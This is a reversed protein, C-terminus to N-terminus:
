GVVPSRADVERLEERNDFVKHVADIMREALGPAALDWACPEFLVAESQHLREAVPCLGPPYTRNSLNFPFGDRGFARRQQFIPLRYLPQVYGTAVPFGEAALAKAFTARSIGTEAADYRVMWVYFNHRCDDRSEPVSWGPLGRTGDSLSVAFSERLHVREEIRKLQEIGIAASLETMRYNFGVMNVLDEAPRGHMMNEAHNRILALRDALRADDTVCMGGEGTHVHKHYNFSFVGIHGITGTRKGNEAGLPAQANDEILYIGHEDALKRLEHLKAPHGFLNVALIARTKPTLAEHVSDLDICFTEDEVDAFVPIGGYVLPAMATASMTWCPVIVEDGPSTGIAGMAAFLGSTASNVSLAHRSGCHTGWAEEFARVRPGGLFEPGASGYFGSLCDSEIVELVARQEAAGMSRDRAFPADFVPAGGLIALKSM